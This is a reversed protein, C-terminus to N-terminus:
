HETSLASSNGLDDKTRLGVIECAAWHATDTELLRITAEDVAVGYSWAVIGGVLVTLQDLGQLPDVESKEMAAVIAESEADPESDAVAKQLGEVVSTITDALDKMEFALRLTEMFGRRQAEEIELFALPRLEMWQGSEGPIELRKTFASVLGM